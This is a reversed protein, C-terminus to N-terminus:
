EIVGMLIDYAQAKEAIESNVRGGPREKRVPRKQETEEYHYRCPIVDVAESYLRGTEIQRIMYDEDSYHKILKENIQKSKIM